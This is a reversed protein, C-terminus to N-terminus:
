MYVVAAAVELTSQTKAQRNNRVSLDSHKRRKTESRKDPVHCILEKKQEDRQGKTKDENKIKKSIDRKQITYSIIITGTTDLIIVHCQIKWHIHTNKM